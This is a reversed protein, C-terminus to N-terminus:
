SCRTTTSRDSSRIIDFLAARRARSVQSGDLIKGDQKSRCVSRASWLITIPPNTFRFDVVVVSSAEDMAKTRVKLVKGDLEIHAARM